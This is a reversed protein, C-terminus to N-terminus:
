ATLVVGGMKKTEDHTQSSNQVDLHNSDTELLSFFNSIFKAKERENANQPKEQVVSSKPTDSQINIVVLNSFNSELDKMASRLPAGSKINKNVFSLRLSILEPIIGMIAAILVSMLGGVFLDVVAGIVILTISIVHCIAKLYHYGGVIKVLRNSYEIYNQLAHLLNEKDRELIAKQSDDLYTNNKKLATEWDLVETLSELAKKILLRDCHKPLLEVSVKVEICAPSELDTCDIGQLESYLTQDVRQFYYKYEKPFCYSLVM